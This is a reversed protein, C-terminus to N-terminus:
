INLEATYRMSTYLRDVGKQFVKVLDSIISFIKVFKM